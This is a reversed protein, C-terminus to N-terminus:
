VSFLYRDQLAAVHVSIGSWRVEREWRDWLEQYSVALFNVKGGAVMNSFRYVEERHTRYESIQNANSPEWFVYMLFLQEAQDGFRNLLGLYHKILQAADLHSFCTPESKLLLFADQWGADAAGTARDYAKSFKATKLSLVELFKSEVGIVIGNGQSWFDLNPPTGLLGTPCKYEFRVSEFGNRGVLWLNEPSHRFPGFSNVCLASSSYAACFKAPKILGDELENGSGDSLDSWFDEKSVTHILNDDCSKTYGSPRSRFVNEGRLHMLRDVASNQAKKLLNGTTLHVLHKNLM